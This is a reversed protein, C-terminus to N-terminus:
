PLLLMADGYSYFRYGEDVAAQYADMVARWGGMACVLVLLSSGPLHFNTLLGDVCKFRYGEQIFLGTEGAGVRPLGQADAAAELTRTVTTGVAIVRGGSAKTRAIADRTDQSVAFPEIHLRGRELDEQRLPRFTGPGVHLTVQAVQVGREELRELLRRTLHLGATPAAVAGPTKAFVTQYRERDQPEADRKFYPPLPIQGTQDMLEAPEPDTQVWWPGDQTKEILRATGQGVQLVEGAKLRRSPRLMALVPGPGPGLLFLEVRGGSARRAELRAHLVRTNNVVLLDGASLLDPLATIKSHVPQQGLVLMRGGDREEPPHRAIRHEPLDFQYRDLSHAV